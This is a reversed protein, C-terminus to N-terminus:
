MNSSHTISFFAMFGASYLKQFATTSSSCLFFNSPRLGWNIDLFFYYWNDYYGYGSLIMAQVILRYSLLFLLSALYVNASKAAYQKSFLVVGLVIGQVAGIALLLVFLDM